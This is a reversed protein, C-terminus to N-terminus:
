IGLRDLAALDDALEDLGPRYVAIRRSRLEDEFEPRSMGAFKAASWLTLKRGEYLRCAIEVLAEREDLGAEILLQDPIVVPM